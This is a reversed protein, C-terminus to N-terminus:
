WPRFSKEQLYSLLSEGTRYGPRLRYLFLRNVQSQEIGPITSVATHYGFSRVAEIAKQDFSGGPYAFSTVSIHYIDELQKKSQGVEYLVVPNLKGALAVHHITHAGVEILGSQIVSQFQEKTMFDAGDIHGSIIYATAKVHYKELIPLVDTYLDWHGDDFTLLIPKAPMTLKGDLIDALESATLFTYGADLLTKVQADFTNPMIDLSQRITDRKDRVYEVYHYLLIPVRISVSPKLPMTDQVSKPIQQVESKQTEIIQHFQSQIFAVIFALFVSFICFLVVIPIYIEFFSFTMKKRSHKKLIKRHHIMHPHPM